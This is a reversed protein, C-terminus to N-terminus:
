YESYTFSNGYILLYFGLLFSPLIKSNFVDAFLLDSHYFWQILIHKLEFMIFYKM